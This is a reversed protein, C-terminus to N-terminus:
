THLKSEQAVRHVYSRRKFYERLRVVSIIPEGLCVRTRARTLFEAHLWESFRNFKGNYTNHIIKIIM